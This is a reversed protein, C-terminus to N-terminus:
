VEFFNLWKRLIPRMPDAYPHSKLLAVKQLTGGKFEVQGPIQFVDRVMRATGFGEFMTHEMGYHHVWALLNHALDTLLVLAEQAIFSLKRRHPLHRGQKDARIEVEAAGRGDYIRWTDAPSLALLTSLLTGYRMGRKWPWRLVFVNVRRGFRPPNLAWAIWRRQEIMEEWADESLQAALSAARSGSYGKMVLQYKGWLLWNINADSGLGADSRIITRARQDDDLDLLRQVHQITPRLTACGSQTGPYLRSWLTEHYTPISVRVLQRGYANRHGSLYGKESGEARRSARLGTLDIDMMLWQTAYPHQQTQSQQRFLAQSGQRLQTIHAETLRNLLRAINSQDAFQERNWSTALPLDPRITTNIQSIATNGALISVLVDQLKEAPAHRRTQVDWELADWVPHLFRSRTLCYGLVALPTYRTHNAYVRLVIPISM